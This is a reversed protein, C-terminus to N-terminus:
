GFRATMNAHVGREPPPDECLFLVEVNTSGGKKERRLPKEAGLDLYGSESAESGASHRNLDQM